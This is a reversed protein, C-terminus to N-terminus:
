KEFFIRRFYEPRHFDPGSSVIPHWTVYQRDDGSGFCNYVNALFTKGSLTGYSHKWFVTSPIVLALEWHTEHSILGVNKRGLSSWRSIQQLNEKTSTERGSRETGCEMLISGICNSEINYYQSDGEKMCFLECCSEKFVGDLDQEMTGATRKETVRYHILIDKGNHAIAFDVQPLYPYTAAWNLVAVKFYEIGESAFLQPIDEAQVGSVNIKEALAADEPVPSEEEEKDCSATAFSLSGAILLIAPFCFLRKTNMTLCNNKITVGATKTTMVATMMTM